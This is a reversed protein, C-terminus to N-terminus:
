YNVLNVNYLTLMGCHYYLKLYTLPQCVLMVSRFFALKIKNPNRLEQIKYIFFLCFFFFLFFFFTVRADSLYVASNKYIYLKSITEDLVATYCHSILQMKSFRMCKAHYQNLTKVSLQTRNLTCYIHIYKCTFYM